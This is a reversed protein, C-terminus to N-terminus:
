KITEKISSTDKRTNSVPARTPRGYIKNSKMMMMRSKSSSKGMKSMKMMMGLARTQQVTDENYNNNNESDTQDHAVVFVGQDDVAHARRELGLRRSSDRRMRMMGMMGKGSMSSYNPFIIPRVTPDTPFPLPICKPQYKPTKSSGSRGGFGSRKMMMGMMLGRHYRAFGEKELEHNNPKVQLHRQYAEANVKVPVEDIVPLVPDVYLDNAKVLQVFALCMLALLAMPSSNRKLMIVMTSVSLNKARFIIMSDTQKETLSHTRFLFIFSSSHPDIRETTVLLRRLLSSITWIIVETRRYTMRLNVGVDQEM